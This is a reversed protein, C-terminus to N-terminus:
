PLSLLSRNMTVPDSFRPFVAQIPSQHKDNQRNRVRRDLIYNWDSKKIFRKTLVLLYFPHWEDFFGSKESKWKKTSLTQQAFWSISSALKLSRSDCNRKPKPFRALHGEICQVFYFPTKAIAIIKLPLMVFSFHSRKLIKSKYVM